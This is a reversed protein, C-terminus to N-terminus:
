IGPIEKHFINNKWQNTILYNDAPSEFIPMCCLHLHIGKNFKDIIAKDNDFM